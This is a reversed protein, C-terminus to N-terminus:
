EDNTITSRNTIMIAKSLSACFICVAHEVSDATCLEVSMEVGWFFHLLVRFFAVFNLENQM